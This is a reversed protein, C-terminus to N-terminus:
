GGRDNALLVAIADVDRSASPAGAPPAYNDLMIAFALQEGTATTVYGALSHVGSMNGTKAQVKGAAATDRMRWALTGDVGALPLADRLQAAYPQVALYVLLRVMARPTVLDRRSLGTGEVIHSAQPAIGIRGLLEQLAHIGWAESSRFTAPPSEAQAQERVGVSLLLNQLYLNQSRKLGHRLIEMLPPSHLEAVLRAPALRLEDDAPWHRVRISGGIRIGRLALAARLQRAAQRAPDDMALRFTTPEATAPVRGFVQLTTSGPARYLNIDSPTAAPTTDIRGAIRAIGGAPDLAISAAQGPTTAPAVTVRVVNEDVSLASAPVAFWSQLDGAEWGTGFPPGSFGSDDAILDGNVRHIGQEGLQAALQAAWDASGETGLTPDGAGRLILHGDLRGHRITGTTLLRTPFRYDPGLTALAVAATFLKATSAPQALRDARHAYLTRGSDLSVVAIGWSAHAFRPQGILRDIRTALTSRATAAPTAAHVTGALTAAAIPVLLLLSHLRRRLSTSMRGLIAM